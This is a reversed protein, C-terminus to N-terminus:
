RDRGTPNWKGYDRANTTDPRQWVPEVFYAHNRVGYELLTNRDPTLIFSPKHYDRTPVHDLPGPYYNIETEQRSHTPVHAHISIDANSQIASEYPSHRTAWDSWGKDSHSTSWEWGHLNEPLTQVQSIALSVQDPSAVSDPMTTPDGLSTHRPNGWRWQSVRVQPGMLFDLGSAGSRARDSGGLIGDPNLSSPDDANPWAPLELNSRAM